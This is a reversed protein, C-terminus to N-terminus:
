PRPRHGHRPDTSPWPRPHPLSRRQARERAAARRRERRELAREVSAISDERAAVLRVWPLATGITVFAPWPFGAGLLAWIAWCVLTPVLFNSWAQRRQARYRREAETRLDSRAPVSSVLDGIVPPLEGLTKARNVTDTRESLEDSTLRGEAYADALLEHVMSRDSDSARLHQHQALRPDLSFREWVDPGPM